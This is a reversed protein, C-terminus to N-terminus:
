LVQGQAHYQSLGQPSPVLQPQGVTGCPRALAAMLKGKVSPGLCALWKMAVCTADTGTGAYVRGHVRLATEAHHAERRRTM